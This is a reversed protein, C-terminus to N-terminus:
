LKDYLSGAESEAAAKLSDRRWKLSAILTETGQATNNGTKLREGIEEYKGEM